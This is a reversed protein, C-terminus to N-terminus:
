ILRARCASIADVKSNDGARKPYERWALEFEEPYSSKPKESPAEDSSVGDPPTASGPRSLDKEQEQEHEQEQD